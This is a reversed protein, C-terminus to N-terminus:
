NVQKAETSRFDLLRDNQKATKSIGPLISHYVKKKEDVNIVCSILKQSFSQNTKQVTQSSNNEPIM